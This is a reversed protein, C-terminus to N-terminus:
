CARSRQFLTGNNADKLNKIEEERMIEDTIGVVAPYCENLWNESNAPDPHIPVQVIWSNVKETHHMNAAERPKFDKPFETPITELAITVSTQGVEVVTHSGSEARELKPANQLAKYEAKAQRYKKQQKRRHKGRIEHNPLHIPEVKPPSAEPQSILQFQAGPPQLGSTGAPLCTFMTFERHPKKSDELVQRISNAACTNEKNEKNKTCAKEKSIQPQPKSPHCKTHGNPKKEPSSVRKPTPTSPPITSDDPNFNHYKSGM